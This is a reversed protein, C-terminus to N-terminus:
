IQYIILYVDSIFSIRLNLYLLGNYVTSANLISIALMGKLQVGRKYLSIMKCLMQILDKHIRTYAAHITM